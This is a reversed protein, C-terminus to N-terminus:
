NQPNSNTSDDVENEIQELSLTTRGQDDSSRRITFQDGDENSTTIEFDGPDGLRAILIATLIGLALLGVVLRLVFQNSSNTVLADHKENSPESVAEPNSSLIESVSKVGMFTSLIESPSPVDGTHRYTTTITSFDNRNHPKVVVKQEKILEFLFNSILRLKSERPSKSGNIWGTVAASSVECVEALEINEIPGLISRWSDWIEPFKVQSGENM